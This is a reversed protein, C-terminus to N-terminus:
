LARRGPHLVLGQRRAGPVELRAARLAPLRRLRGQGGAGQRPQGRSQRLSLAQRYRDRLARRGPLRRRDAHAPRHHLAERGEPRGPRQRCPGHGQRLHRRVAHGQRGLAMQRAQPVGSAWVAIKFGPPLKITALIKDLEAKRRRRDAPRSQAGPGEAARDRRGPVLRAASQALFDKGSSNYKKLDKRRCRGPVAASCPRSWASLCLSEDVATEQRRMPTEEQPRVPSARLVSVRSDLTWQRAACALGRGAGNLVVPICLLHRSVAPM